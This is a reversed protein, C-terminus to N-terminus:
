LTSVPNILFVEAAPENTFVSEYTWLNLIMNIDRRGFFLLFFKSIIGFLSPKAASRCGNAVLKEWGVIQM